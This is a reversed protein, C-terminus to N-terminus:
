HSKRFNVQSDLAVGLYKVSFSLPVTIGNLLVDFDTVLENMRPSIVLLQSKSPNITLKNFKCWESLRILELNLESQLNSLNLHHVTLCTNDLFLRPITQTLNPLDNVYLLFLLPGLTSGQPVGFSNTM